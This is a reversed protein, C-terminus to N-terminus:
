LNKMETIVYNAQDNTLFFKIFEVKFNKNNLPHASVIRLIYGSM